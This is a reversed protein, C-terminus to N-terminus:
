VMLKKRKDLSNGIPDKPFAQLNKNTKNRLTEM